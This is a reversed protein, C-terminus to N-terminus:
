PSVFIPDSYGVREQSDIIRGVYFGDATTSIIQGGNIIRGNVMPVQCSYPAPMFVDNVLRTNQLVEAFRVTTGAPPVVTATAPAVVPSGSLRLAVAGPLAKAAPISYYLTRGFLEPAKGVAYVIIPASLVSQILAGSADYMRATARLFHGQPIASVKFTTPISISQASEAPVTASYSEGFTVRNGDQLQITVTMASKTPNLVLGEAIPVDGVHIMQATTIYLQPTTKPFPIKRLKAGYFATIDARTWNWNSSPRVETQETTDNWTNITQWVLGSKLSNEWVTRYRHTAMADLYGGSPPPPNERDYGPFLGGAYKRDYSDLFPPILNWNLYMGEFTYEADFHPFYPIYQEPHWGKVQPYAELDNVMFPNLGLATLRSRVRGWGDASIKRSAYFFVVLRGDEKAASIHNAALAYYRTVEGVADDETHAAINPAFWFGPHKDAANMWNTIHNDNVGTADVLLQVGNFGSDKKRQIGDIRPLNYAKVMELPYLAGYPTSLQFDPMQIMEHTWVIPTSFAADPDPTPTATPTTTPRVTPTAAPTATPRPTPTATPKKKARSMAESIPERDALNNSHAVPAGCAALIALTGASVTMGFTRHRM